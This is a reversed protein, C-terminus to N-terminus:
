CNVGVLGEGGGIKKRKREVEKGDSKLFFDLFEPPLPNLGGGGFKLNFAGRDLIKRLQCM